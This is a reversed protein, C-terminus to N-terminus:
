DLSGDYVDYEYSELLEDNEDYFSINVYEPDANADDAFTDAIKECIDEVDSEITGTSLADWLDYADSDEADMRVTIIDSSSYNVRDIVFEIGGVYYSDGDLDDEVDTVDSGGRYDDDKYQVSISRTGDKGFKVLTDDSDIDIIEGTVETDDSLEDQIDGVLDYLWSKIESDSLGAWEDEDDGLDVEILVDVDDEDGDLIIDEIAVDGIEDYDDILDSELGSLDADEAAQAQLDAVQKKLDAIEQDKSTLQLRLSTVEATAGSTISVTKTENQWNVNSNLAAGVVRLPLYITGNMTFPESSSLNVAKGDVIIKFNNYDVKVQKSGVSAEAAMAFAFVLLAALL